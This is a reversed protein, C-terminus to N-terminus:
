AGKWIGNVGNRDMQDMISAEEETRQIPEIYNTCQIRFRTRMVEHDDRCPPQADEQGATGGTNQTNTTQWITIANM